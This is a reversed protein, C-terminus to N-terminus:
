RLSLSQNVVPEAVCTLTGGFERTEAGRRLRKKGTTERGRLALRVDRAIGKVGFEPLRACGPVVELAVDEARGLLDHGLLEREADVDWGVALDAAVVVDIAEAAREVAHAELFVLESLLIDALLVDAQAGGDNALKRGLAVPGGDDLLPARGLSKARSCRDLDRDGAWHGDTVGDGHLLGDGVADVGVPLGDADVKHGDEPALDKGQGVGPAFMDLDVLGDERPADLVRQSVADLVEVTDQAAQGRVDDAGHVQAAAVRVLQIVHAVDVRGLLVVKLKSGQEVLALRVPDGELVRVAAVVERPKEREEPLLRNHQSGDGHMAAPDLAHLLDLPSKLLRQPVDVHRPQHERRIAAQTEQRLLNAECFHAVQASRAIIDRLIQITSFVNYSM